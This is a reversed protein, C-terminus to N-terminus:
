SYSHPAQGLVPWSLAMLSVPIKQIHMQGLVARSIEQIEIKQIPFTVKYVGLWELDPRILKPNKDDLPQTIIVM